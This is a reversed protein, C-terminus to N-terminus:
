ILNNKVEVRNVTEIIKQTDFSDEVYAQPLEYNQAYEYAEEPTSFPTQIELKINVIVSLLPKNSM